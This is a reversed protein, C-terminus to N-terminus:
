AGPGRVLAASLTWSCGVVFAASSEGLPMASGVFEASSEGLPMASGVFAASSEGLPM